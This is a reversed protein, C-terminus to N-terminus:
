GAPKSREFFEKILERQRQSVQDFHQDLRDEGIAEAAFYLDKLQDLKAVAAESVVHTPPPDPPPAPIASSMPRGPPLPAPLPELSIPPRPVANIAPPPEISGTVSPPRVSRAAEFPGRPAMVPEPRPVATAGPLIVPLPSTRELDENRPSLAIAPQSVGDIPFPAPDSDTGPLVDSFGAQLELPV